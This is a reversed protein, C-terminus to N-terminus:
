KEKEKLQQELEIVRKRYRHTMEKYSLYEWLEELRHRIYDEIDTKVMPYDKLFNWLVPALFEYDLIRKIEEMRKIERDCAGIPNSGSNDVTAKTNEEEERTM